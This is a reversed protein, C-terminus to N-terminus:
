QNKNKEVRNWIMEKKVAAKEKATALSDIYENMQEDTMKDIRNALAEKKAIRDEASKVDSEFKKTTKAEAKIRDEEENVVGVDYPKWGLGLALKQWTKNREDLMEAVNNAKDVLRDLPFNTTAATVKGAIDYAPSPNFKGDQMLSFGREKIIDKDYKSTNWASNLKSMKSSIPPSIGAAAIIIKASEGKFGKEEQKLYELITNKVTSVVAGYIGTGRLITDLMSNAISIYKKGAKEKQKAKEKEDEPEEEFAVAFLASQLSSFIMSQIFGYYLIKSIHTKADGRGNKLDRGAKKMLRNYQM